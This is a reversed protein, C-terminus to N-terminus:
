LKEAVRAASGAHFVTIELNTYVSSKLPYDYLLSIKFM